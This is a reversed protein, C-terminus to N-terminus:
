EELQVEATRSIRGHPLRTATYGHDLVGRRGGLHGGDVGREEAGLAPRSPGLHLSGSTILDHHFRSRETMQIRCSSGPCGCRPGSLVGAPPPPVPARRAGTNRREPRGSRARPNPWSGGGLDPGGRKIRLPPDCRPPRRTHVTPQRHGRRGHALATTLRHWDHAVGRIWPSTSSIPGSGLLVRLSGSERRRNRSAAPAPAPTATSLPASKRMDQHTFPSM